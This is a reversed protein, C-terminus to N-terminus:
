PHYPSILYEITTANEPPYFTCRDTAKVWRTGLVMSGDSAYASVHVTYNTSPMPAAQGYADRFIVPTGSADAAIINNYVMVGSGWGYSVEIVAIPPTVVVEVVAIESM